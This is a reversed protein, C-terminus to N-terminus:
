RAGAARRLAAEAKDQAAEDWPEADFARLFSEVCARLEDREYVAEREPLSRLAHLAHAIENKARDCERALFDARDRADDRERVVRDFDARLAELDKTEKMTTRAYCPRSVADLNSERGRALDCTLDRALDDGEALLLQQCRAYPPLRM